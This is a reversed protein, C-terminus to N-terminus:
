NETTNKICRVSLGNEMGTISCYICSSSFNLYFHAALGYGSSSWFYCFKGIDSFNPTGYRGGGPIANFGSSNTAGINPSVWLTTAKLKGGVIELILSSFETPVGGLSDILQEWESASPIHFGKPALGRSDNVAYWNYLKGYIKGNESKNEYYCWAGTTLKGWEDADQVQPIVDGNRYHSVNLNEATWEQNGIIVTKYTNGDIDTVQAFSINSCFSYIVAFM